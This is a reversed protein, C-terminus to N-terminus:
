KSCPQTMGIHDVFEYYVLALRYKDASFDDLVTNIFSRTQNDVVTSDYLSQYKHCISPRLGNIVVQCGDWLYMATKVGQKEANIWLPETKNWWHNHSANRHPVMLFTDGREKDYMYNEIMGHSEGYLGTTIAYWNPYSNAPFIPKVYKAHVGNEAIKRFGKLSKDLSVYDWRFGDVLIILLKIGDQSVQASPNDDTIITDGEEDDDEISDGEKSKDNNEDNNGDTPVEDDIDSVTVDTKEENEDRDEDNPEDRRFREHILDNNSFSKALCQSLLILVFCIRFISQSKM